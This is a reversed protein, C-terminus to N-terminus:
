IMDSFMKAKEMFDDMHGLLNERIDSLNLSTLKGHCVLEKGAVWVRDVNAREASYVLASFPNYCPFMNVADREILVLDAQKGAEISGTQEAIGLARAGGMTGLRVIKRAPFLGRDHNTTKHFSAFLRFQTLLSLTNGSSPGDTGLSVPIGLAAMEKVPAVGKGAKTNSGICHSIAAGRAAVLSLDHETMHICHALLTQQSLVGLHDLFETPTMGYNESFHKLEYDMESNHLTYLTDYKCALDYAKKLFVPDCTNTAHPAILPSILPHSKWKRIFEEGYELGGHPLPSDCTKQGIVTEGPFARIGALACAEAVQDEFYYMDLFTTTGSLLMEAIGYLAGWYVLEPTMAIEELPFLFRRLRDPCDDGMTRFPIMSVHCHTNIMGPMLISSHADIYHIDREEPILSDVHRSNSEDRTVYPCPDAGIETIKDNDLLVYGDEYVTDSADMTLVWAHDILTRM